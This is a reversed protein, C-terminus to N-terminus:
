FTAAEEDIQRWRAAQRKASQIEAVAWDRVRKLPHSLFQRAVAAEKEHAEAIDGRYMQGSHTGAAFERFVKDDAEFTSLVMETLPPVTPVGAASIEPPPLHRALHRAGPVGTRNLWTQVAELPLAIFLPSLDTMGIQGATMPNLTADGVSEMVTAPHREALRILGNLALTRVNYDGDGLAGAIMRCAADPEADAWDVALEVWLDADQTSQPHALRLARSLLPLVRADAPSHNAGNSQRNSHLWGHLLRIAGAAAKANGGEAATVLRHVAGFLQEDSLERGRLAHELGLLYEAPLRGRDVMEFLRDVKRVAAGASWLVEYAAKPHDAQLRDLLANIRLLLDPRAGVTHDIYGRALVTGDRRPIDDVMRDLLASASDAQALIQGFRYASRADPSCLWGLERDFDAPSRVLDTALEGAATQWAEAEGHWHQRWFEQGVLEVLRGHLSPAVLSQRWATLQRALDPTVASPFTRVQPSQQNGGGGLAGAQHPVPTHHDRGFIDLFEEVERTLDALLVDPLPPPGIIDRVDEFYSALLLSSLRRVILTRIGDALSGGEATLRAAMALAARQCARLDNTTAPQWQPPPIRGFVIPPAALRAGGRTDLAGEIAALALPLHEAALERSRRELLALRENFPIPTGSLAARFLSTWLGSASNGLQGETEDRALRLLMAEADLFTEPFLALKEALWVLARRAERADHNMEHWRRLEGPPADLLLKNLLPLYLGADMEILRVLRAVASESGLDPPGLTRAWDLFFHAVAERMERTGLGQVRQTFAEVLPAPLANLFATSDPAVWKTWGARFAVQAILNPTVYLYRGAFAVFGPAYRLRNAVKIVEAASLGVLPLACVAELEAKVEDRYGVRPLLAVAAVADLEAEKLRRRLYRDHFEHLGYEALGGAPIVSDNLCLDVALRVFGGSVGAWARRRDPVVNPFNAALIQEVTETPLHEFRLERAGGARQLDNDITIVRLRDGCVPLLKAIREWHDLDCEDAVLIAQTGPTRALHRAFELAVAQDDTVAVLAVRAADGLLAECVGRSKGAGAEGQVTLPTTVPNAFDVHRRIEDAQKTWTAAPVYELTLAQFGRHWIDLTDLTLQTHFQGAVIAPYENAWSALQSATIVQAPPADPNFKRAEETLWKEWESKKQDSMDDAICFRYGYGQETLRHAHPKGIENRLAAQQGGPGDAKINGTPQAKYQWCTPVNMYGTRDREVVAAQGIAADVGGDAENDKVNLRVENKPVGGAQAHSALLANMFRVFAPSDGQLAIVDHGDIHWIPKM